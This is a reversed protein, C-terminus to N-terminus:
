ARRHRLSLRHRRVYALYADPSLLVPAGSLSDLLWVEGGLARLSVWHRNEVNVVAGAIDHIRLPSSCLPELLLAHTLPRGHQMPTSRVAMALVESSFWGGEGRHDEPQQRLQDWNAERMFIAYANDMDERSQWRAGAANNLAHMGCMADASQTEFYMNRCCSLRAAPVFSKARIRGRPRLAPTEEPLADSASGGDDEDGAAISQQATSSMSGHMRRSHVAAAAKSFFRDGCHPCAHSPLTGSAEDMAARRREEKATRSKSEELDDLRQRLEAPTDEPEFILRWARPQSHSREAQQLKLKLLAAEVGEPAQICEASFACLYVDALRQCRSLAVYALGPTRKARSDLTAIIGNKETAGQSKHVTKAWALVIPFQSRKIKENDLKGQFYGTKREIKVADTGHVKRWRAGGSDFRVWLAAVATNDTNLELEDVWGTAGNVLGDPVDLNVRLMVRAGKIISLFTAMGGTDESNPWANEESSARGGIAYVDEAPCAYFEAGSAALRAGDMAKSNERAVQM